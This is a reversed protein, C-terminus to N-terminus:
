EEIENRNKTWKSNSKGDYYDSATKLGQKTRAERAQKWHNLKGKIGHSHKTDFNNLNRSTDDLNNQADAYGDLDGTKKYMKSELKNAKLEQRLSNRRESFVQKNAKADAREQKAGEHLKRIRERAESGSIKGARQLGKINKRQRYVSLGNSGHTAAKAMVAAGAAGAIGAKTMMGLARGGTVISKMDQMGEKVSASEGIFNAVESGFNQMALAGGVYLAVSLLIRLLFNINDIANIYSGARSVFQVYIQIGIFFALIALQKGIYQTRWIKLRKGDDCIAASIVFPSIMFLWFMQLVKGVVLMIGMILCYITGLSIMAGTVIVMAGEGWNLKDYYTRPIVYEGESFNSGWKNWEEFSIRNALAKKDYLSSWITDSLTTSGGEGLIVGVILSIIMNAVFIIIPIGILYLTGVASRKIAIKVYNDSDDMKAYHMRVVSFMVMFVWLILSVVIFRVFMFPVEAGNIGDQIRVGFLIYQPLDIAILQYAQVIVSILKLPLAVFITSSTSFVSYYLGGFM